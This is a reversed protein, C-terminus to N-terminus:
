FEAALIAAGLAGTLQPLKPRRVAAGLTESLIAAMAESAALGGTFVCTQGIGLRAAMGSTRGAVSKLVGAAIGAPPLSQALLSIIESEAFVACMSSIPATQGNEAGERALEFFNELDLGLLAAAMQVFRGTGAACKDNMVFDAVQGQGDLRIAKSDQGGVDIVGSAEPFFHHAGRAHCTIESIVRMEQRLSVRGYGTGALAALASRPMKAQELARGLAKEFAERHNWGSPLVAWGLLAKEESDYVAAKAAVSGIDIGATIM